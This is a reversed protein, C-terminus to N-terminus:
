PPGTGAAYRPRRPPNHQNGRPSPTSPTRHRRSKRRLPRALRPRPEPPLGSDALGTAPPLGTQPLLGSPPPLNPEATGPNATNRPEAPARAMPPRHPSAPPADPAADSAPPAADPPGPPADDPAAESIPAGLRQWLMGFVAEADDADMGISAAIHLALASLLVRLVEPDCDEVPTNLLACDGPTLEPYKEPTFIGDDALWSPPAATRRFRGFWGTIRGHRAPAGSPPAAPATSAKRPARPRRPPKPTEAPQVTPTAHPAAPHRLRVIRSVAARVVGGFRRVLRAAVGQHPQTLGAIDDPHHM